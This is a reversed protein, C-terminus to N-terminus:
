EKRIWCRCQSPKRKRRTKKKEKRKKLKHSPKRFVLSAPIGEVLLLPAKVEGQRQEAEGFWSKDQRSSAIPM